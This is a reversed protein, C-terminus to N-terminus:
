NAEVTVSDINLGEFASPEDEVAIARQFEIRKVMKECEALKLKADQNKPELRVATKFDKLAQQSQLIAGNAVARRYYAQM